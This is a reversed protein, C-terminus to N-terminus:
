PTAAGPRPESPFPELVRREWDQIRKRFAELLEPHDPAVDRNEEPDVPKDFLLETDQGPSWIYHWRRDRFYYAPDKAEGKRRRDVKGILSERARGPSGELLPRLDIGTRGPPLRRVGGYDALTPFLDVSSVLRDDVRGAPIHGPWSLILPTRFGLEHMSGKGKKGPARASPPQDWGNDSLYVVLTSERLGQRELHRLLEGVVDDFWSCNAYYVKAPRSLGKGRYLRRYRKPADFPAHPLMPAFWLFFPRGGDRTRDIFELVPAITRRGLEVDGGRKAREIDVVTGETFGALRAPGEWFKGAQFSVYGVEGLLRPLTAVKAIATRRELQGQVGLQQLRRKWQM